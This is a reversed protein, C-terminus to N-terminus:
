AAAQRGQQDRHALMSKVLRQSASDFADLYAELEHLGLVVYGKQPTKDLHATVREVLENEAVPVEYWYEWQDDRLRGKERKVRPALKKVESKKIHVGARASAPDIDGLLRNLTASVGERVMGHPSKEQGEVIKSGTLQQDVLVTAFRAAAGEGFQRVLFREHGLNVLCHAPIRMERAEEEVRAEHEWNSEMRRLREGKGVGHVFAPRPAGRLAALEEHVQQQANVYGIKALELDAQILQAEAEDDRGLARLARAIDLDTRGIHAVDGLIRRETRLRQFENLKEEPPKNVALGHELKMRVWAARPDQTDIERIVAVGAANFRDQAQVQKHRGMLSGEANFAQARAVPDVAAGSVMRAFRATSIDDQMHFAAASLEALAFASVGQEALLEIDKTNQPMRGLFEQTAVQMAQQFIRLLENNPGKQIITSEVFRDSNVLTLIKQVDGREVAERLQGVKESMEAEIGFPLQEPAYRQVETETPAIIRRREPNMNVKEVVFVEGVCVFVM